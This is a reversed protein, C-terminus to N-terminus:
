KKRKNINFVRSVNFGFHADGNSWSDTTETIFGKDNMATSNTFHLQFVHGGTEIDFGISASNEYIDALQNDPVYVYELNLSVRKSLKLRSAFGLAVVDNSEEPTDVLNRHVLSPSLQFSFSDSFKRGLILQYTYTLKHAFPQEVTTVAFPTTKIASSALLLASIPMNKAGSSQRLFKYKVFGDLTKEFSSRGFGVMLQDTIGYDAGLRVSAQDLGFLESIGGQVSGLRHSIKVDLVRHKTTELSQLNIVRNAKFSAFVYDTVPDESLLGLLDEEQAQATLLSSLLLTTLILRTM